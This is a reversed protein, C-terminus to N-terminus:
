RLFRVHGDGFLAHAGGPHFSYPENDNRRNIPIDCGNAPGCGETSGDRNAGDLSFPGESDAWGIGQDATGLEPHYRGARYIEPRGACEVVMITFASGDHIDAFKGRSNRYMISFRNGANYLVPDISSPQVGMIAEYDTQGLPAPFTM